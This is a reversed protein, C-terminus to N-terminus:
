FMHILERNEPTVKIVDQIYGKSLSLIHFTVYEDDNSNVTNSTANNENTYEANKTSQRKLMILLCIPVSTTLLFQIIALTVNIQEIEFSIKDLGEKHHEYNKIKDIGTWSRELVVSHPVNQASVYTKIRTYPTFFCLQIVILIVYLIAIYIIKIKKM